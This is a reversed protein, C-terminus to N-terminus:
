IDTIWATIVLDDEEHRGREASLFDYYGCRVAGPYERCPTPRHEYVTCGRTEEDLFMCASDFIEDDRHRLVRTGKDVGKKTFKRRAKEESIGFRKALRKIDRKTTEIQPYTCCFAPCRQCSYFVPLSAGM